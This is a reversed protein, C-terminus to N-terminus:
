REKTFTLIEFRYEAHFSTKTPVLLERSVQTKALMRLLLVKRLEKKDKFSGYSELFAPM